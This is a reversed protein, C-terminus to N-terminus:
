AERKSLRSHLSRTAQTRHFPVDPRGATRTRPYGVLHTREFRRCLRRDRAGFVSPRARLFYADFIICSRWIHVARDHKPLLCAGDIQELSNGMAQVIPAQPPAGQWGPRRAPFITGVHTPVAVVGSGDAYARITHVTATVLSGPIPLTCNEGVPWSRHARLPASRERGFRGLPGTNSTYVATVTMTSPM